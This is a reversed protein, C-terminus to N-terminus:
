REDIRDLTGDDLLAATEAKERSRFVLLRYYAFKVVTTAGLIVTIAILYHVGFVTHVMLFLAYDGARFALSAGFFHAFEQQIAGKSDFIVYRCGLFNITLVVALSVAFAVEESFGIQEHLLYTFGLNFLFSGVGWLGFQTFSIALRKLPTM